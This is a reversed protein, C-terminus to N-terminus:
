FLITESFEDGNSRHSTSSKIMAMATTRRIQMRIRARMTPDHFKEQGDESGHLMVTRALGGRVEISNTNICVLLLKLLTAKSLENEMGDKQPPPRAPIATTTVMVTVQQLTPLPPPLLM